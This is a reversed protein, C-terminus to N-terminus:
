SEGMSISPYRTGSGRNFNALDKSGQDKRVILRKKEEVLLQYVVGQEQRSRSSNALYDGTRKKRRKVQIKRKEVGEIEIKKLYIQRSLQYPVLSHSPAGDKKAFTLEKRRPAKKGAPLFTIL